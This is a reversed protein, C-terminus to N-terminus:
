CKFFWKLIITRMWATIMAYFAPLYGGRRSSFHLQQQNLYMRFKQRNPPVPNVVQHPTSKGCQQSRKKLSPLTEVHNPHGQYYWFKRNPASPSNYVRRQSETLQRQHLNGNKEETYSSSRLPYTASASYFKTSVRKGQSSRSYISLRNEIWLNKRGNKRNKIEFKRNPARTVSNTKWARLRYRRKNSKMRVKIWRM